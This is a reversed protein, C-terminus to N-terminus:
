AASSKERRLLVRKGQERRDRHGWGRGPGQRGYEKGECCGLPLTWTGRLAQAARDQGRACCTM